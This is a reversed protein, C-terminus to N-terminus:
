FRLILDIWTLNHFFYLPVAVQLYNLPFYASLLALSFGVFDYLMDFISFTISPQRSM